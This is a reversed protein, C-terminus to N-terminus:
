QWSKTTCLDERRHLIGDQLVLIENSFRRNLDHDHSIMVAPINWQAIFNTILEMMTVAASEDLAATPEDLLLLEPQAITAFAFALMQRQGGSFHALTKTLDATAYDLHLRTLHAHAQQRINNGTADTLCARGHKLLFLACNELVSFNLVSSTTPDQRLIALRKAREIASLASFHTTGLHITGEDSALTGCLIDFLTSKGAGNKGEIITLSGKAAHFNIDRLIYRDNFRKKISTVNLM